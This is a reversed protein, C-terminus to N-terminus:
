INRKKAFLKKISILWNIPQFQQFYDTKLEHRWNTSERDSSQLVKNEGSGRCQGIKM